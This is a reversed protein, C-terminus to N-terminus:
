NSWGMLMEIVAVVYKVVPTSWKWFPGICNIIVKAHKVVNEVEAYNTIDFAFAAIGTPSPLEKALSQLKQLSRGGIGLSFQGRRPHSALYQIALKGASIACPNSL